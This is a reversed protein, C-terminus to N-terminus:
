LLQVSFMLMVSHETGERYKIDTFETPLASGDEIGSAFTKTGHAVWGAGISIVRKNKGVFFSIQPGFAFGSFTNATADLVKLGAFFGYKIEDTDNVKAEAVAAALDAKAAKEAAATRDKEARQANKDATKADVNLARLKAKDKKDADADAAAGWAQLRIREAEEALKTADTKANQAAESIARLRNAKAEKAAIPRPWVNWNLTLWASPSTDIEKEIKVTRDTGYIAAKDIYTDHYQEVGIGLGFGWQDISPADNKSQAAAEKAPAEQAFGPLSASLLVLVLLLRKV